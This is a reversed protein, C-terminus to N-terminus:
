SGKPFNANTDTWITIWLNTFLKWKYVVLIIYHRPVMVYVAKTYLHFSNVLRHIVIHVSVFAIHCPFLTFTNNSINQLYMHSFMNFM